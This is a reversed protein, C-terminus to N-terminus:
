LTQGKRDRPRVQSRWREMFDDALTRGSEPARGALVPKNRRREAKQKRTM